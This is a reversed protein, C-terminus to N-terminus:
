IKHSISPANLALTTGAGRPLHNVALEFMRARREDVTWAAPYVPWDVALLM